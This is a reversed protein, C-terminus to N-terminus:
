WNNLEDEVVSRAVPKEETDNMPLSPFDSGSVCNARTFIRDDFIHIEHSADDIFNRLRTERKKRSQVTYIMELKDLLSKGVIVNAVTSINSAEDDNLTEHSFICGSSVPTEDVILCILHYAFRYPCEEQHKCETKGVALHKKQRVLFEYHFLFAHCFTRITDDNTWDIYGDQSALILNISQQAM